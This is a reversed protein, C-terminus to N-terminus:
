VALGDVNRVNGGAGDCNFCLPQNLYCEHRLSGCDDTTRLPYHVSQLNVHLEAIAVRALIEIICHENRQAKVDDSNM